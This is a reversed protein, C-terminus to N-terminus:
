VGAMADYFRKIDAAEFNLDGSWKILDQTDFAYAGMRGAEKALAVHAAIVKARKTPTSNWGARAKYHGQSNDETYGFGPSAGDTSFELESTSVGVSNAVAAMKRMGEVTFVNHQTWKRIGFNRQTKIWSALNAANYDPMKSLLYFNKCNMVHRMNNRGGRILAAKIGKLEDIVSGGADERENYAEFDMYRLPWLKTSAAITEYHFQFREWAPGLKSNDATLYYDKFSPYGMKTFYTCGYAPGQTAGCLMMDMEAPKMIKGALRMRELFVPNPETWNWTKWIPQYTVPMVAFDPRFIAKDLEPRWFWPLDAFQRTSKIGSDALKSIYGVYDFEQAVGSPNVFRGTTLGHYFSVRVKM